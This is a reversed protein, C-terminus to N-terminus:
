GHNQNILIWLGQLQRRINRIIWKQSNLIAVKRCNRGGSVCQFNRGSRVPNAEAIIIAIQDIIVGLFKKSANLGGGFKFDDGSRYAAIVSLTKIRKTMGDAAGHLFKGIVFEEHAGIEAHASFNKIAQPAKIVAESRTGQPSRAFFGVECQIAKKVFLFHNIGGLQHDKVGGWEVFIDTAAKGLGVFVAQALARQDGFPKERLPLGQHQQLQALHQNNWEELHNATQKGQLESQNYIIDAGEGASNQPQHYVWKAAVCFFSLDASLWFGM